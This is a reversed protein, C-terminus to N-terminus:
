KSIYAERLGLVKTSQQQFYIQCYNLYDLIASGSINKWLLPELTKFVRTLSAKPVFLTRPTNLCAEISIVSFFRLKLHKYLPSSIFFLPVSSRSLM